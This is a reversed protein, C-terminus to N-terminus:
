VISVSVILLSGIALFVVPLLASYFIPAVLFPSFLLSLFLSPALFPFLGATLGVEFFLSHALILLAFSLFFLGLFSRREV